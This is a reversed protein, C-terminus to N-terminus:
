PYHRGWCRQQLRYLLICSPKWTTSCTTQETIMVSMRRSAADDSPQMDPNWSQTEHSHTPASFTPSYVIRESHAKICAKSAFMKKRKPCSECALLGSNKPIEWWIKQFHSLNKQCRSSSTAWMYKPINYRTKAKCIWCETCLVLKCTM